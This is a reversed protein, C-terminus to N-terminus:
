AARRVLNSPTTPRPNACRKEVREQASSRKVGRAARPTFREAFSWVRRIHAGLSPNSADLWLDREATELNQYRQVPM